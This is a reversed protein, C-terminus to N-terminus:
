QEDSSTNEQSSLKCRSTGTLAVQMDLLMIYDNTTHQLFPFSCSNSYELPFLVLCVTISILCIVMYLSIISEEQHFLTIYYNELDKQVNGRRNLWCCTSSLIMATNFYELRELRKEKRVVPVEEKLYVLKLLIDSMQTYHQHKSIESHTM